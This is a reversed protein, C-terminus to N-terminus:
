EFLIKRFILNEGFLYFALKAMSHSHISGFYPTWLIIKLKFIQSLLTKKIDWNNVKQLIFTILM